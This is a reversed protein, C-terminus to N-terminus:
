GRILRALAHQVAAGEAETKPAIGEPLAAVIGREARIRHLAAAAPLPDFSM